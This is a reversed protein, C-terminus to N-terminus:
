VCYGEQRRLCPKIPGLPQLNAEWIPHYDSKQAKPGSRPWLPKSGHDIKSCAQHALIFGNLFFLQACLKLVFFYFIPTINLFM